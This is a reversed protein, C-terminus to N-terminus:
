AGKIRFSNLVLEFAEYGERTDYRDSVNYRVSYFWDGEIIGHYFTKFESGKTTKYTFVLKFGNYRGLKAPMNEIVKFNLVSRDSAIEDLVVQAAEQPLMGKSFKRKTHKFPEEVRRQQVYIYQSYFGDKTIMMPKHEKVEVWHDPLQISYNVSRRGPGGAGTESVCAATILLLLWLFKKM